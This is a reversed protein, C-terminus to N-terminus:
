VQQEVGMSNLMLDRCREVSINSERVYLAFHWRQGPRLVTNDTPEQVYRTGERKQVWWNTLAAGGHRMFAFESSGKKYLERGSVFRLELAAGDKGVVNGGPFHRRGVSSFVILIQSFAEVLFGDKHLGM